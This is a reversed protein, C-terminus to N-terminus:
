RREAFQALELLAHPTTYLAETPLRDVTWGAQEWIRQKRADEGLDLHFPGGDLEIIRRHRLWSLDAEEDAVDHNLRPVEYGADRLLVLAHVEAGSRARDLPLGSYTRAARGLRAVGRRGRHHAM